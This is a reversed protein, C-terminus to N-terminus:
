HSSHLNRVPSSPNEELAPPGAVGMSVGRFRSFNPQLKLMTTAIRSFRYAVRVLTSHRGHTVILDTAKTAHM